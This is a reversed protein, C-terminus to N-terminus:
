DSMGMRGPSRATRAGRSRRRSTWAIVSLLALSPVGRTSRRGYAVACGGHAAFGETLVNVDVAIPVKTAALREKGSYVDVDLSAGGTDRDAAVAFRFFGPAPREVDGKLRGHHVDIDLDGVGPGDAIRGDEDRLLLVLPLDWEPDPHTFDHSPVLWSHDPSPARAEPADILALVDRTGELDLAGPGMQAFLPIRGTPFRVGAQLLTLIRDQTLDPTGELLLAVAGAVVPSAMSTGIAVGHTQDVTACDTAPRCFGSEGFMGQANIEPDAARSMAGAVFAGPALIDPKMRQDATPGASSFYAISDLLDTSSSGFSAIAIPDDVRDTWTTRNVTAGVSIVAPSSAPLAVTSEKVAAPFLAGLSGAGAGLEGGSQVWLDATGHGELHIAFTEQVPWTGDVVVVAANGETIGLGAEKLAGNVITIALVDSKDFKRNTGRGQPEVFGGSRKDLGVRLDDGSRYAIWVLMVADLESGASSGPMTVLPVRVSEGEPVNVQTHVGLPNPFTGKGNALAASNGAAVVISRGPHDPGVLEALGRELASTGDHGGFDSGLSLNVVAPLRERGHKQGESEALSFVLDTGLLVSADDIGEGNGSGVRVLILTSGPASGVYKKEEGGSGAALSAVHTGHGFDDTPLEEAGDQGSLAADIETAGLVRCHGRKEGDPPLEEACRSEIDPYQGLATQAFDIFYAVRTTGDANRLDAHRLDFGADVIGVVVDKGTYGTTSRFTNARTWVAARDLLPVLPASWTVRWDPHTRALLDLRELPASLVSFHTGIRPLGFAVPDEGEPVEIIASMRDHDMLATPQRRQSFHPFTAGTHALTRVDIEAKAISSFGLTAVLWLAIKIPTQQHPRTV